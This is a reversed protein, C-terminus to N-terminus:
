EQDAQVIDKGVRSLDHPPLSVPRFGTGLPLTAISEADLEVPEERALGDRDPLRVVVHRADFGQQTEGYVQVVYEVVICHVREDLNVTSAQECGVVRRRALRDLSAPILAMSHRSEHSPQM